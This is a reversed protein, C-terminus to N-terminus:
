SKTVRERIQRALDGARELALLGRAVSQAEPEFRGGHADTAGNSAIPLLSSNAITALQALTRLDKSTM